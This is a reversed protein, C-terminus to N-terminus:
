RTAGNEVNPKTARLIERKGKPGPLKEVIFGVAQLARRVAGKSCYTVFIGGNHLADFIRQFVTETWLEPQFSPAFADYYIIHFLQPFSFSELPTHHKHITFQPHLKAEQNWEAAHIQRMSDDFNQIFNELENPQLPYLEVAHYNIAISLNVAEKLTLFCNLGTGFGMEFIKIESTKPFSTVFFRLGSNIFVHVSEQLAGNRSHYTVDADVLRFTSSGDATQMLVRNKMESDFYYM